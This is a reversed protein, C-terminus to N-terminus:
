ANRSDWRERRSRLWATRHMSYSYTENNFSNNTEIASGAAFTFFLIKM